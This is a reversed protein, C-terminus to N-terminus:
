AANDESEHTPGEGGCWPQLVSDPTDPRPSPVASGAGEARWARLECIDLTRLRRQRREEYAQQSAKRKRRAEEQKKQRAELWAKRFAYDDGNLAMNKIHENTLLICIHDHDARYVERTIAWLKQLRGFFCEVPVRTTNLEENWQIDAVTLRGGKKPTCRRFQPTDQAPGIYGKDCIVAWFSHQRDHPLRENEGPTKRLYPLYRQYTSKLIMYDHVSGVEGPQSFLAYHPPRAAVAVEKKLAYIGNKADWYVKAEEFRARPRNVEFSSSDLLLAVHSFNRSNLPEPRSKEKWWRDRLAQLLHPRVRNIAERLTNVKIHLFAALRRNDLHTKFAILLVLLSDFASLSPRPGRRRNAEWLANVSLSLDRLEAENFNTLETLSGAALLTNFIPNTDESEEPEQYNPTAERLMQQIRDNQEQVVDRLQELTAM